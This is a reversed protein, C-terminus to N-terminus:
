HMVNIMYFEGSRLKGCFYYYCIIIIFIQQPFYYHDNYYIVNKFLWKGPATSFRTCLHDSKIRENALHLIPVIIVRM